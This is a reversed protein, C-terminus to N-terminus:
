AEIHARSNNKFNLATDILYTFWDVTNFVLIKDLLDDMM